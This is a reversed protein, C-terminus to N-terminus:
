GGTLVAQGAPELGIEDAVALASAKEGMPVLPSPNTDMGALEIGPIAGEVPEERGLVPDFHRQVVAEAVEEAELRLQDEVVDGTSIKLAGARVVEGTVAVAAVALRLVDLHDDAHHHDGAPRDGMVDPRPVADVMGRDLFDDLIQALPERERPQD